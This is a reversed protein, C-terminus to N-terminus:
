KFPTNCHISHHCYGEFKHENCYFMTLFRIIIFFKKMFINNEKLKTVLLASHNTKLVIRLFISKKNSYLIISM